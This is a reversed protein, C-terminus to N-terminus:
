YGAKKETLSMKLDTYPLRPLIRTVHNLVKLESNQFLKSIDYAGRVAVWYRVEPASGNSYWGVHGRRM